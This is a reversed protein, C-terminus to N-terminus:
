AGTATLNGYSRGVAQPGLLEVAQRTVMPALHAYRMTMEMTAHGLLEQVAKLPVGRMVLHSAFTHRLAHWGFHRLGARKRTRALASRMQDDSLATGDDNCWVLRGRLHKNQKLASSTRENLPVARSRGSKPSGVHGQWDSRQVNLVGAVLDCDDWELALLEGLRLGTNLAVVIASHWQGEKRSAEILREAEDFDLFSATDKPVAFLKVRPARELMRWDVAVRLATRLVGLQNNITKKNLGTKLRETKFGEITLETIADLRLRGLSPLLHLRFISEKASAESPKNNNAVYKGLFEKSFNDLTPVEVEGQETAFFEGSVLAQRLDREYQEAGRRSQVPSVKRERVRQGTPLELDVDVMWVERVAGTAASRRRQRRVSM